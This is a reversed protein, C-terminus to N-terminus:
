FGPTLDVGLIMLALSAALGVACILALMKFTEINSSAVLAKRSTRTLVGM